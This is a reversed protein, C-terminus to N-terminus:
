TSRNTSETFANYSLKASIILPSKENKLVEVIKVHTQKSAYSVIQAALQYGKGDVLRLNEGVKKRVVNKIHHSESEPLEVISDESWEPCYYHQM